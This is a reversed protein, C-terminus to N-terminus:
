IFKLVYWDLKNFYDDLEGGENYADKERNEKAKHEADIQYELKLKKLKLEHLQIEKQLKVDKIEREKIFERYKDELDTDQYRWKEAASGKWNYKYNNM